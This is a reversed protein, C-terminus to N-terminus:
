GRQPCPKRMVKDPRRRTKLFNLRTRRPQPRNLIDHGETREPRCMRDLGEGALMAPLGALRQKGPRRHPEVMQDLAIPSAVVAQM